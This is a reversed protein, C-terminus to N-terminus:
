YFRDTKCLELCHMECSYRLSHWGSIESNKSHIIDNGKLFILASIMALQGTLTVGM